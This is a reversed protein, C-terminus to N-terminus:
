NFNIRVRDSLFTQRDIKEDTQEEGSPVTRTDGFSNGLAFIIDGSLKTVTAFQHDENFAVRGELKDIRAGLAALEAEFEWRSLSRAGRFTRDPYGVICGYREVLRGLYFTRAVLHLRARFVKRSM